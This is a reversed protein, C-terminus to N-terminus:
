SKRAATYCQGDLMLYTRGDEGYAMNTLSHGKLKIPTAYVPAGSAVWTRTTKVAHRPVARDQLVVRGFQVYVDSGPLGVIRQSHRFKIGKYIM